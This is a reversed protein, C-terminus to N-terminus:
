RLYKKLRLATDDDIEKTQKYHRIANLFSEGDSSNLIEEVLDIANVLDKSMDITTQM